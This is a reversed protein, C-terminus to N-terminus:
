SLTIKVDQGYLQIEKKPPTQAQKFWPELRAKEAQTLGAVEVEKAGRQIALNVAAYVPSVPGYNVLGPSGNFRGNGGIGLNVGFTLVEPGDPMETDLSSRVYIDGKTPYGGSKIKGESAITGDTAIVPQTQHEAVIVPRKEGTPISGNAIVLVKDWNKDDEVIEVNAGTLIAPTADAALAAEAAANDTTKTNM